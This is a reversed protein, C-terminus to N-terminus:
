IQGRDRSVIWRLMAGQFDNAFKSDSPLNKSLGAYSIQLSLDRMAAIPDDGFGAIGVQLNEGILACWKDGDLTLHIGKYLPEISLIEGDKVHFSMMEPKHSEFYKSLSSPPNIDIAKANFASDPHRSTGSRPHLSPIRAYHDAKIKTGFINDLVKNTDDITLDLESALLDLTWEGSRYQDILDPHNEYDIIDLIQETEEFTKGWAEALTHETLECSRYKELHQEKAETLYVTFRNKVIDFNITKRISDFTEGLKKLNRILEKPTFTPQEPDSSETVAAMGEALQKRKLEDVTIGQNLFMRFQQVHMLITTSRGVRTALIAAQQAQAIADFAWNNCSSDVCIEVILKDARDKIKLIDDSGCRIPDLAILDKCIELSERNVRDHLAIREPTTPPHYKFYEEIPLQM